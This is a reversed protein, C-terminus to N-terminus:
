AGMFAFTRAWSAPKNTQNDQNLYYSGHQGDLLDANLNNVQTTSSIVFPATGTAIPIDLQGSTNFTARRTTNQVIQLNGGSNTTLDNPSEWIKWLNGGAWAIGENPGPDAITLNNVNVINNNGLNLADIVGANSLTISNSFTKVGAITQDGTTYVGNTVTSANGNLTATITGAIFNGYNGTNDAQLFRSAPATLFVDKDGASFNVLSGGNSSALVTTRAFTNASIYTGIGVEWESLSFSAITYYFTDNVALVSAFTRFGTLAGSVTFNGTGVQSSIERVRDATIHPM